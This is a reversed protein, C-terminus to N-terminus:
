DEPLEVPGASAEVAEAEGTRIRHLIGELAAILEDRSVESRKFTLNFRFDGGTPAFRYVFPRARDSQEGRSVKKAQRLMERDFEGAAIAEVLREMDEDSEFRSLETLISRAEIGHQRCLQRIREPIRRLRLCEAITSRAKGIVEAVKEQTYGYKEMLQAYGDAEEFPSLDRRQLNEILAIEVVEADDAQIEIVPVEELGAELAAHFRREGSIIQYRGSDPRVRVLLPELVGKSLISSRLDALDGLQTRPQDPNPDLQEVSVYKGVHQEFRRTLTDVYHSDHRMEVKEPLGRKKGM